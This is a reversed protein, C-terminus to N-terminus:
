NKRKIMSYLLTEKQCQEHCEHCLRRLLGRRIFSARPLIRECYACGKKRNYKFGTTLFPEPSFAGIDALEATWDHEGLLELLNSIEKM